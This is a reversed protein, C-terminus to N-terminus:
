FCLPQDIIRSSSLFFITKERIIELHKVFNRRMTYSWIYVNFKKIYTCLFEKLELRLVMPCSRTPGERTAVLVVNLDFIPHYESVKVVVM